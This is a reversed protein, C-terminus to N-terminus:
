VLLIVVSTILFLIALVITAIFIQKEMGRKAYFIGGTDSSGFASGLGNSGRQVLIGAVLLIALVIQIWPLTQSLLTMQAM